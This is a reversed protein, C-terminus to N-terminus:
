LKTFNNAHIKQNKLADCFKQFGEAQSTIREVIDPNKIEGNVIENWVNILFIRFPYIFANRYGFVQQLHEVPRLGGFMGGLGLFCVPRREFALPFSLHDILLKLVGPASGNYEPAIVILGDSGDIQDTIKKLIEPKEAGYEAGTFISLPLDELNIIEVDEGLHKYREQVIKALELSRSKPRNTGVIIHKM